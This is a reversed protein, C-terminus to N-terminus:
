FILLSEGVVGAMVLATRILFCGVGDVLRGVNTGNIVRAFCLLRVRM